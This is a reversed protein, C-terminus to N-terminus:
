KIHSWIPNTETALYIFGTSNSKCLPDIKEFTINTSFISLTNPSANNQRHPTSFLNTLVRSSIDDLQIETIYAVSSSKNSIVWFNNTTPLDEM